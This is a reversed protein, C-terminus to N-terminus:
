ELTIKAQKVVAQWKKGEDETYQQFAEPAYQADSLLVIGQDALKQTFAKDKMAAAYAQYMKQIAAKPTGKRAYIGYWTAADFGPLVNALPPTGPFLDIPQLSTTAIARVKGGRVQPLATNTQDFMAQTQGSMVDMLAPGSGKYSVATIDIGAKVEFLAGILHSMSGVGGNGFNVKQPNRKAHEILDAATKYPSSTNVLLVMPTDPFRFVADFDKIPDYPLKPYLAPAAAMYGVHGVIFSYGDAPLTRAVKATGITGGAGPVNEIIIPQGLERSVRDAINRALADTPGGASHPVIWTVPRNPYSQAAVAASAAVLALGVIQKTFIRM